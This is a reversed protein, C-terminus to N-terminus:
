ATCEDSDAGAAGPLRRLLAALTDLEEATYREEFLARVSTVHSCAAEELKSRGDDTLM